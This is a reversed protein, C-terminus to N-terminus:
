KDNVLWDGSVKAFGVSKHQQFGIREYFTMMDDTWLYVHQGHLQDVVLELMHKAIGRRRYPTYTWVDVIYGNCVGDSLARVTGIIKGDAYAICTIHSNKFSTEYQEVTRGNHFDDDILIAKMAQWDVGNLDMKYTIETSEM